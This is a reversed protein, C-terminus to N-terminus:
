DMTVVIKGRAARSGLRGIAEGGRSLPFRETV